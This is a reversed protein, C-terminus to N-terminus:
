RYPYRSFYWSYNSWGAFTEGYNYDQLIGCLSEASRGKFILRTNETTKPLVRYDTYTALEETLALIAEYYPRKDNSDWAAAWMNLHMLLAVASARTPRIGTLSSQSVRIPLD